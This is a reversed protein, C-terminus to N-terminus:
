VLRTSMFTLNSVPGPWVAPQECRIAWGDSPGGLTFNLAYLHQKFSAPHVREYLLILRVCELPQLYSHHLSFYFFHLFLSLFLFQTQGSVGSIRPESRFAELAGKKGLVTRFFFLLFLFIGIKCHILVFKWYSFFFFIYIYKCVDCFM